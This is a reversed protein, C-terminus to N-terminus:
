AGLDQALRLSLWEWGARALGAQAERLHPSFTPVPADASRWYYGTVLALATTVHAPDAGSFVPLRRVLAEVDHGDGHAGILLCLSDFWAPGVAAWTWDCLLVEEQTLLLNDDRVDCHVLTEGALEGVRAAAAAAAPGLPLDPHRRLVHEPWLSAFGGVEEALAPLASPPAPTLVEAVRELGALARDLEAQTWPRAPLQHAHAAYGLVVWEDVELMWRLQPAVGAPLWATTIAEQRYSAAFTRQARASAAKVFHTSGDACTLTSAVGPSFGGGHSRAQVVPAGLRAEVAGRVPRPLHQWELRCATRGHPIACELVTM